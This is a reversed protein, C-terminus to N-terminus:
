PKRGYVVYLPFYSHIKGQEIEQVAQEGYMEAEKETMGGALLSKLLLGGALAKINLLGLKGLEKLKPDKAWDGLPYCLIHEQVDVFGQALLMERMRVICRPDRGISRVGGEMGQGLKELASGRSSGDQSSVVATHEQFEVWGGPALQDYIRQLVNEISSFWIIILRLHIYDFKPHHSWDDREADEQLFIVNATKDKPQIVSLDTGIVISEPHEKAFELAWIGTGAAIDLVQPPSQQIPAFYLKDDMAGRLIRHQLNLRDQEVIDNPLLYESRTSSHYTHNKKNENNAGASNDDNTMSDGARQDIEIVFPMPTGVQDCRGGSMM